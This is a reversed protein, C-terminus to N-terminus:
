QKSFSVICDFKSDGAGLADAAANSVVTILGENQSIDPIVDLVKAYVSKGTANNTIKLVTGAAADNCFCYYKGDQWGSTSKFVAGSGSKDIPAQNATQQEYLNKFYGKGFATSNNVAVSSSSATPTSQTAPPTAPSETKEPAPSVPAAAPKEPQTEAVIEAKPQPNNQVSTTPNETALPSQTKDVKLFGIIMQHGVTLEDSPL